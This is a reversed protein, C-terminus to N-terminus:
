GKNYKGLQQAVDSMIKNWLGRDGIMMLIFILEIVSIGRNEDQM